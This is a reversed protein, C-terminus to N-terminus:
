VVGVDFTEKASESRTCVTESTVTYSQLPSKGGGDRGPTALAAGGPGQDCQEPLKKHASPRAMAFM